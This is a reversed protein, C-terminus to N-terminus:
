DRTAISFSETEEGVVRITLVVDSNDVGPELFQDTSVSLGTILRDDELLCFFPDEDAAPSSHAPLAEEEPVKLSDLLTKLRNDLDGGHTVISGVPGPKLMFVSIEAAMCVYDSIIPVFRFSGRRIELNGSISDFLDKRSEHSMYTKLQRHFHRRLDHKHDKSGNSKLKGRYHLTLGYKM